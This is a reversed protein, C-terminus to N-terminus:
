GILLAREWRADGAGAASWLALAVGASGTLLGPNDLLVGAEEYDQVGLLLHEDCHSLVHETLAAIGDRIEASDTQRDFAAAIALLGAAGHCLTAGDMRGAATFRRLVAEFADVAIERVENDQLAISANLLACAIGPAGYCWATRARGLRGRNEAGDETLPIGGPWNRGWEDECPVGVLYDTLHRVTEILGEHRHGARWAFSLAALPGPIGHALGLNVYGHPYPENYDEIPYHRPPIFWRREQPACLWILDNVLVDVASQVDPALDTGFLSLYGLTGSAGQVADYDNDKVGDEARWTVTGTVQEALQANLKALTAGYRPEETASDAFAFALGATGAALGPNDLPVDFSTQAALVLQQHALARWHEAREPQARHANQFVLASGAHGAFLSPGGWGFPYRSSQESEAVAAEVVDPDALRSALLAAGRLAEAALAPHAVTM